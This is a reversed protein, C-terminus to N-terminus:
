LHTIKIVQSMLDEDSLQALTYDGPGVLRNLALFFHYIVLRELKNKGPSTGYVKKRSCNFDSRRDCDTM